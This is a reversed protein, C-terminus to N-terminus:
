RVAREREALDPGDALAIVIIRAGRELLRRLSTVTAARAEAANPSPLKEVLNRALPLTEPLRAVISEYLDDDVLLGVKAGSRNILANTAVTTSLRVVDTQRLLGSRDTGLLSAAQDICGLIGETLDHPTTDVKSRVAEGSGSVYGDTFTGGTDLEDNYRATEQM